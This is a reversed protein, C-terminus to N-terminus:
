SSGEDGQDPLSTIRIRSEEVVAFIGEWSERSQIVEVSKRAIHDPSPLRVRFLLIGCAAPLGFRFALEGFDKDFTLVVRNETRAIELVDRDSIGPADTRVWFVDHGTDRLAKVAEGPFNENAILQM